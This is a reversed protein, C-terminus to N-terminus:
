VNILNLQAGGWQLIVAFLIGHENIKWLSKARPADVRNIEVVGTIGNRDAPEAAEYEVFIGGAAGPNVCRAFFDSGAHPPRVLVLPM